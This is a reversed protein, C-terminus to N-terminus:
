NYLSNGTTYFDGMEDTDDTENVQVPAATTLQNIRIAATTSKSVSATTTTTTRIVNTTAISTSLVVSPCPKKQRFLCPWSLVCMKLDNNWKTCSPCHWEYCQGNCICIFYKTCDTSHPQFTYLLWRKPRSAYNTAVFLLLLLCFEATLYLHEIININM